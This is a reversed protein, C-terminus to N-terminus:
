SGRMKHRLWFFFHDLLTPQSRRMDIPRGRWGTQQRSSGFLQNFSFFFVAVFMVLGALIVFRAVGPLFLRMFYGAVVFLLATLMLQDVPVTRPLDVVRRLMAKWRLTMVRAFRQWANERPGIDGLSKLIEEIEREYPTPM